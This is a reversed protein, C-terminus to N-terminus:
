FFFCARYKADLSDRAVGGGSVSEVGEGRGKKEPRQRRSPRQVGGILEVSSSAHGQARGRDRERSPVFLVGESEKIEHCTPEM